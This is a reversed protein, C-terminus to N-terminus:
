PALGDASTAGPREETKFPHLGRRRYNPLANPHDQTSTHLWIRRVGPTLNWAHRIALTLAYGGLRRGVFGPVLGFTEIEVEDGPHHDYAALGAPAGEFSLLRFLRDPREAFWTVWEDATRTACKWGYPAGIRVQLDVVLPSARDLPTLTLGPVPAAPVLRDRDTMELYTVIEGM